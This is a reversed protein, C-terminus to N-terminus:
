EGQLPDIMTGNPKVVAGDTLVVDGNAMMGIVRATYTLGQVTAWQAQTMTPWPSAGAAARPRLLLLGTLLILLATTNIGGEPPNRRPRRPNNLFDSIRGRKRAARYHAAAAGLADSREHAYRRLKNKVTDPFHDRYVGSILAGHDGYRQGAKLARQEERRDEQTLLSILRDHFTM